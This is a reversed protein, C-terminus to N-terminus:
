PILMFFVWTVSWMRKFFLADVLFLPPDLQDEIISRSQEKFHYALELDDAHMVPEGYLM